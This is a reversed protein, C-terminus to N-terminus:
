HLCRIEVRDDEFEHPIGGTLQDRMSGDRNDLWRIFWRMFDDMNFENKSPVNLSLWNKRGNIDSSFVFSEEYVDIDGPIIFICRGVVKFLLPSPVRKIEKNEPSVRITDRADVLRGRKDTVKYKRHKKDASFWSQAQGYGFLGRIYREDRINHKPVTPIATNVRNTIVVPAIGKAKMAHKEGIIGGHESQLFYETLASKVYNGQFNVGSKLLKYIIGIEKTWLNGGDIKKTSLNKQSYDIVGVANDRIWSRLLNEACEATMGSTIFGGLGKNQRLGFNHMLFFTPLCEELLSKLEPIFCRIYLSLPEPNFVQYRKNNDATGFYIYRSEEKPDGTRPMSSPATIRMLYNLAQHEPKKGNVHKKEDYEVMWEIPITEGPNNRTYWQQVFCDLKPKVETARPGIGMTMGGYAQFHIMPTQQILKLEICYKPDNFM